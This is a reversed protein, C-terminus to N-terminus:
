AELLASRSIGIAFGILAVVIGTIYVAALWGDPQGLASRQLAPIAAGVALIAGVSSVVFARTVGREVLATVGAWAALAAPVLLLWPIAGAARDPALVAVPGLVIVIAAFTTGSHLLRLAVARRAAQGPSRARGLHRRAWVYAVVVVVLRLLATLLSATSADVRQTRALWAVVLWVGLLAVIWLWHRVRRRTRLALKSPLPNRPPALWCATTSGREPALAARARAPSTISM